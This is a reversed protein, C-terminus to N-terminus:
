ARFRNIRAAIRRQREERRANSKDKSCNQSIFLIPGLAPIGIILVCGIIAVVIFGLLLGTMVMVNGSRKLWERQWTRSVFERHSAPLKWFSPQPYLLAEPWFRFLLMGGAFSLALATGFAALGNMRAAALAIWFLVLLAPVVFYPFGSFYNLVLKQVAENTPNNQLVQVYHPLARRKGKGCSVADALIALAISNEPDIELALCAHKEAEFWKKERTFLRALMVHGEANDPEMQVARWANEEAQGYLECEIQAHALMRICNANDPDISVAASAARMGEHPNGLRLLAISCLRHGWEEDPAAIVAMNAYNLAANWDALSIYARSIRCLVSADDPALRAAEQLVPLAENARDIDILSDAQNLLKVFPEDDL